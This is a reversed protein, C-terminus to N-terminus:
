LEEAEGPAFPRSALEQPTLKFLLDNLVDKGSLNEGNVTM